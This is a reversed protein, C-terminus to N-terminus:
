KSEKEKGKGKEDPLVNLPTRCFACKVTSTFLKVFCNVCSRTKWDCCGYYVFPTGQKVETIYCIPCEVSEFERGPKPTWSFKSPNALVEYSVEKTKAKELQDRLEQAIGVLQQFSPRYDDCPEDMQGYGGYPAGMPRYPNNMQDGLLRELAVLRVWIDLQPLPHVNHRPSPLGSPHASHHYRPSPPGSPNAKSDPTRSVSSVSSPVPMSTSSPVSMSSFQTTSSIKSDTKRESYCLECRTRACINSFTCESCTWTKRDKTDCSSVNTGSQEQRDVKGDSKKEELVLVPCLTECMSCKEATPSNLFTCQACPWTKEDSEKTDHSSPGQSSVSQSSVFKKENLKPVLCPANCASCQQTSPSNLLNCYMCVWQKGPCNCRYCRNRPHHHVANNFANCCNCKWSMNLKLVVQNM